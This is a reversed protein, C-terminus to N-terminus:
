FTGDKRLVRKVEKFIDVLNSIFEEPTAEQGLQDAVSYDRLQWYPPSTVVTHIINDPIKKLASLADQNIIMFKNINIM